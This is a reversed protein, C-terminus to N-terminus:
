VIVVMWCWQVVVMVWEGVVVTGSGVGDLVIWWWGVVGTGSVDGDLLVTWCCQVM